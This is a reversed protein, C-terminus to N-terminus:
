ESFYGKIEKASEPTLTNDNNYRAETSYVAIDNNKKTFVEMADVNDQFNRVTINTTASNIFLRFLGERNNFNDENVLQTLGYLIIENARSYNINDCSYYRLIDSTESGSLKVEGEVMRVSYKDDEDENSYKIAEPSPYIFTGLKNVLEIFDDTKFVAYYDIDLGLYSVLQTQVTAGGGFSYIDYLSKGDIMMKPSLTCVKYAQGDRDVQVLFAFHIKTEDEDAEFILFNRKGSIEPLKEEQFDSLQTTTVTDGAFFDKPSDYKNGLIVFFIITFIVVIFLLVLLIHEEKSKKSDAKSFYIDGRNKFIKM